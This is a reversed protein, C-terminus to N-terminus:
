ESMAVLGPNIPRKAISKAVRAGIGARRMRRRFYFTEILVTTHQGCARLKCVMNVPPSLAEVSKVSMQRRALLLEPWANVIM